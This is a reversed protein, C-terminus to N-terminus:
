IRTRAKHTEKKQATGIVTEKRERKKKKANM